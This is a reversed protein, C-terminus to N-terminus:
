SASGTAKESSPSVFSAKRKEKWLWFLTAYSGILLYALITKMATDAAQPPIHLADTLNGLCGCPPTTNMWWLTLRYMILNTALWAILVVRLMGSKKLMCIGAVLLELIGVALMLHGLQLGFVPDTSTMIRPGELASGIKAIGTVALIVGASFCFWNIRMLANEILCATNQGRKFVFSVGVLM